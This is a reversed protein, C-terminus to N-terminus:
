KTIIGFVTGGDRFPTGESDQEAHVGSIEGDNSINIIYLDAYGNSFVSVCEYVYGVQSSLSCGQLINAYNNVDLLLTGTTSYNEGLVIDRMRMDIYLGDTGVENRTNIELTSNELDQITSYKTNEVESSSGGGCGVLVVAFVVAILINKM